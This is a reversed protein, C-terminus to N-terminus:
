IVLLIRKLVNGIAIEFTGSTTGSPGIESEREVMENGRACVHEMPGGRRGGVELTDQVMMM